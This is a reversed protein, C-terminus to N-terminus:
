HSFKRLVGSVTRASRGTALWKAGLSALVGEVTKAPEGWPIRPKLPDFKLLGVFGDQLSLIEVHEDQLNLLEEVYSMHKEYLEEVFVIGLRWPQLDKWALYNRSDFQESYMQSCLKTVDGLVKQTRCREVIVAGKVRYELNLVALVDAKLRAPSHETRFAFNGSDDFAGLFSYHSGIQNRILREQAEKEGLDKETRNHSFNVMGHAFVILEQM